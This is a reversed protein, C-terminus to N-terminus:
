MKERRMSENADSWRMEIISGRRRDWGSVNEDKRKGVRAQVKTDCLRVLMEYGTRSEEKMQKSNWSGINNRLNM